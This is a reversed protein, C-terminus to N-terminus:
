RFHDVLMIDSNGERQQTFLIWRGDPSVALGAVHEKDSNFIQDVRRTAFDFYRISKSADAPVFYIGGPVVTYLSRRALEPMGQVTLESGPQKLSVMHLDGSDEPSVFFVAKGDYSEFAFAGSGASLAEANGGGAPCRFIKQDSTAQFYIWKGDHSWSPTAMDSLNTILKRPLREFIDVIYIEPHGTLRSDFALKRSDPSWRPVGAKSSKSDSMRVLNTGDADSMWIEWDGGRGSVFAIHKGDPSYEPFFNEYTSSILKAGAVETNRLDKRWIDAHGGFSDSYALKAGRLSVAPCCAFHGFPLKRPIGDPLTIEDLEPDNGLHPRAVIMGRDNATWAVGTPFGWGTMFRALLKPSGGSLSVSYIGIDNPNAKLLCVYALQDGTHSFAPDQEALCGEAHPIQRNELTELSLVHIRATNGHRVVGAPGTHDPYAIWKGDASWSLGWGGQTSRLKREPGGSAPVLYIGTDVGSVRYFAIQTGDPSWAVSIVDSPHQTLRLLNESHIVKVYLDDGKAGTAPDGSWAFAIQSGDPSFAPSYEFGPYDTFPVPTMAFPDLRPRLRLYTFVAAFACVASVLIWARLKLWNTGTDIGVKVQVPAPLESTIEGSEASVNWVSPPKAITSIFRYGRRPLTEVLKPDDASDELVERLRNAPAAHPLQRVAGVFRYGRGPVTEIFSPDGGLAKRLLFINNSLSGEEVFSDPWLTRILEDKKLLHGCNRVLLLLTDFAKPTLAVIQNGRLLKREAPDLRFPGFEYLASTNGNSTEGVPSLSDHIEKSARRPGIEDNM